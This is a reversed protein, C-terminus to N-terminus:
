PRRRGAFREVRGILLAGLLLAGGLPLIVNLLALAWHGSDLLQLTEFSFLSVTTFSGCFGVMYLYRGQPHLRHQSAHLLVLLCAGALNVALTPLPFVGMYGLGIWWRLLSGVMGGIAIALCDRLSLLPQAVTPSSNVGTCGSSPKRM